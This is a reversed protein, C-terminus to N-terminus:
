AKRFSNLFSNKINKTLPSNQDLMREPHWQVALLFSHGLESREIGEITGDEAICNIKLGNGLIEIAQHHSSNVDLNDVSAIQHLLTNPEVNVSHIKDPNGKHTKNLEGLDQKLTGGSICNILQLGRCIGLIPLRKEQAKNFVSIEFKDRDKKFEQPANPYINNKCGYFEPHIDVGGSLVLGDCQELDKLNNQAASLKVVEIGEVSTLWNVYNIHSKPSSYTLGIRM